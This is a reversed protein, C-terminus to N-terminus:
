PTRRPSADPTSTFNRRVWDTLHQHADRPGFPTTHLFAQVALGDLMAMFDRTALALDDIAFEGLERGRELVARVDASWRAYVDRQWQAYNEDHSALSWFDLWVRWHERTREDDAFFGDIVYYLAAAGSEAGAIRDAVPQYFETMEQDLVAGLIEAIGSFHYTLTGVSVDGAEAIDRTTTAFLGREAIVTRAAEVILGRRIETPQRQRASAPKARTPTM